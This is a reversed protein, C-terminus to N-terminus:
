DLILPYPRFKGSHTPEQGYGSVNSYAPFAQFPGASTKKFM